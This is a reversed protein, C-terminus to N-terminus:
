LYILIGLLLLSGVLGSLIYIKQIKEKKEEAKYKKTLDVINVPKSATNIKPLFSYVSSNSKEARM